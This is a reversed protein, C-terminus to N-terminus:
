YFEGNRMKEFQEQSYNSALIQGCRISVIGLKVMTSIFKAYTRLNFRLLYLEDTYGVKPDYMESKNAAMNRVTSGPELLLIKETDEM